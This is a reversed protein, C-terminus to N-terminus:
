DGLGRQIIELMQEINRRLLHRDKESKAMAKMFAQMGAVPDIGDTTPAPPPPAAAKKAKPKPASASAPVPKGDEVEELLGALAQARGFTAPYVTHGASEAALRVEEFSAEANTTQLYRVMFEIPNQPPSVFLDNPSPASQEKPAPKPTAWAPRRGSPWADRKPPAAEGRARPENTGPAVEGDHVPTPEAEGHGDDDPRSPRRPEEAREAKQAQAKQTDAMSADVVEDQPGIGLKRRAATWVQRRVSLGKSVRAERRAEKYTIDPENQLLAVCFALADLDPQTFSEDVTM